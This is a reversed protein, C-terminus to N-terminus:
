IYLDTWFFTQFLLSYLVSYDPLFFVLTEVGTNEYAIYRKLLARKVLNTWVKWQQPPLWKKQWWCTLFLSLRVVSIWPLRSGLLSPPGARTLLLLRRQSAIWLVCPVKFEMLSHAKCADTLSVDPELRRSGYLLGGQNNQVVVLVFSGKSPEELSHQRLTQRPHYDTTMRFSQGSLCTAGSCHFADQPPVAPVQQVVDEIRGKGWSVIGGLRCSYHLSSEKKTAWLSWSLSLSSCLLRPPLSSEGTGAKRDRAKFTELSVGM